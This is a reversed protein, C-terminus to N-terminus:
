GRAATIPRGAWTATRSVDRDWREGSDGVIVIRADNWKNTDFLNYTNPSPAFIDYAAGPGVKSEDTRNDIGFEIGTAWIQAGAVTMM